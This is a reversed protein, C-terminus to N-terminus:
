QQEGNQNVYFASWPVRSISVRVGCCACPNGIFSLGNWGHGTARDLTGVTGAPIVCLSNCLERATTVSMGETDTLRAPWGARKRRTAETTMANCRASQWAPSAKVHDPTLGMPGGGSMAELAASAENYAAELRAQEAKAEDYTMATDGTDTNVTHCPRNLPALSIKVLRIASRGPPSGPRKRHNNSREPSTQRRATM